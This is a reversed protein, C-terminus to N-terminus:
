KRATRSLLVFLSVAVIGVLLGLLFPVWRWALGENVTQEGVAASKEKVTKEIEKEAKIPAPTKSRQQEPELLSLEDPRLATLFVLGKKGEQLPGLGFYMGCGYAWCIKALLVKATDRPHVDISITKDPPPPGMMGRFTSLGAWYPFRIGHEGLRLSKVVSLWSRNEIPLKLSNVDPVWQLFSNEKPYLCIINTGEVLEWCYKPNKEVIKDFLVRLSTKKVDMRIEKHDPEKDGSVPEFCIRIGRNRLGTVGITMPDALGDYYAITKDLVNGTGAFSTSGDPQYIWQLLLAKPPVALVKFIGYNGKVTKVLYRLGVRAPVWNRTELKLEIGNKKIDALSGQGLSQVQGSAIIIAGGEADDYMLDGIKRIKEFFAEESEPKQRGNAFPNKKLVESLFVHSFSFISHSKLDNDPLVVLGNPLSDLLVQKEESLREIQLVYEEQLATKEEFKITKTEFRSSGDPQHVWQVKLGKDTSELVRLLGYTGDVTRILYREGARAPLYAMEQFRPELRDPLEQLLGEGLSQATKTSVILTGGEADDYIIDGTKEDQMRAFFAEKSEPEKGEAYYPNERLAGTSFSFVCLGSLDYDALVAVGYTLKESKLPARKDENQERALLGFTLFFWIALVLVSRLKTNHIM